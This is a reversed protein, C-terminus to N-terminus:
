IDSTQCSTRGLTGGIYICLYVYVALFIFFYFLIEARRYGIGSIKRHPRNFTYVTAETELRKEHSWFRRSILAMDLYLHSQPMEPLLVSLNGVTPMSHTDLSAARNRQDSCAGLLSRGNNPEDSVLVDICRAVMTM